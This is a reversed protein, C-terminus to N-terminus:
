GCNVDSSGSAATDGCSISDGARHVGIGNVFVTSSGGSAYGDHSNKGSKHSPYHDGIRVVGAGNCIVDSSGSDPARPPYGSHGTSLDIGQRIVGSM